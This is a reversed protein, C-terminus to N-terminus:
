NEFNNKRRLFVVALVAAVAVMLVYPAVNTMIGTPTTAEKYNTFTVTINKSICGSKDGEVTTTYGDKTYNVEEVSYRDTASLGHITASQGDKLKITQSANDVTLTIAERNDSFTVYFKENAAGTVSIPFDFEKSKDGQNGTVKKTITVDYIGTYDNTFVGDDKGYEDAADTFTYAYVKNSSNVYVDFYKTETSYTIGEYTGADESVNYRYIGPATFKSEDISITTTGVTTTTEGIDSTDPTSTIKGAGEAFYAGDDPGAYIADQGESADVASGPTIRFEFTTAPAYDNADKTIKKTITVNKPGNGEAFVTTGMAMMMTGALLAAAIRHLMKSKKM